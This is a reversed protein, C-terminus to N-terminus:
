YAMELRLETAEGSFSFKAQKFSPPGMFGKADNSVAVGETPIGLIGTGLKRDGNEDHFCVVAYAGAPVADFVCVAEKASIDCWSTKAAARSDQPFGKESAFLACGAQGTGSRLNVLRVSLAAPAGTGVGAFLILIFVQKM